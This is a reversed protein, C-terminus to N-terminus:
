GWPWPFIRLMKPRPQTWSLVRSFVDLAQQSKLAWPSASQFHSMQLIYHRLGMWLVVIPLYMLLLCQIWDTFASAANVALVLPIDYPSCWMAGTVNYLYIISDAAIKFNVALTTTLLNRAGAYLVEWSLKGSDSSTRSFLFFFFRDWSGTKIHVTRDAGLHDRRRRHRTGAFRQGPTCEGVLSFTWGTEGEDSVPLKGRRNELATPDIVAAAQLITAYRVASIFVVPPDQRCGHWPCRIPASDVPDASRGRGATWLTTSSLPSAAERTSKRSFPRTLIMMVLSRPDFPSYGASHHFLISEGSEVLFRQQLDQRRLQMINVNNLSALMAM